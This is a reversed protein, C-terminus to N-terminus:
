KVTDDLSIFLIIILRYLKRHNRWKMETKCFPSSHTHPLCDFFNWYSTLILRLTNECLPNITRGWRARMVSWSSSVRTNKFHLLSAYVDAPPLVLTSQRISEFWEKYSLMLITIFIIKIKRYHRSFTSKQCVYGCCYM